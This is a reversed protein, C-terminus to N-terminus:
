AWNEVLRLSTMLAEIKPIMGAPTTMIPIPATNVMAKLVASMELKNILIPVGNM